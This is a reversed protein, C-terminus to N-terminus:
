NSKCYGDTWKGDAKVPDVWTRGPNCDGKKAAAFSGCAGVLGACSVVILGIILRKTM